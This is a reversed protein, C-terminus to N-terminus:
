FSAANKYQYLLDGKSHKKFRKKSEPATRGISATMTEWWSTLRLSRQHKVRTGKHEHTGGSKQALRTCINNLVKDEPRFRSMASLSQQGQLQVASTAWILNCGGPPTLLVTLFARHTAIDSKKKKKFLRDSYKGYWIYWIIDVDDSVLIHPPPIPVNHSFYQSTGGYTM